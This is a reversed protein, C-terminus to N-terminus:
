GVHEMATRRGNRGAFFAALTGLVAAGACVNCLALSLGHGGTGLGDSILGTMFPGLAVGTLTIFSLFIRFGADHLSTGLILPLNALAALAAIGGVLSALALLCCATSASSARPILSLLPIVLLLAWAVMTMPSMGRQSRDILAGATFHGVPQAVLLCVGFVSAAMAPTLGHERHLISPAWAGIAQVVLVSAGAGCLYACMMGPREWFAAQIQKFVGGSPPAAEHSLEKRNLLMGILLLNPAAMVLFLLRWHAFAAGPVWRAFMALVGGGLLLSLGRGIPAAATFIAISRARWQPASCEVMLNLALPVYAAQGLGVMARALVLVIFAHGFAFIAMGAAWTVICLALMRFRNRSRALPWSGLMGVVYLLVFAPGDLLGLQADSLGMDTKLLPAAVAPLNRDVFALCHGLALLAFLPVALKRSKM